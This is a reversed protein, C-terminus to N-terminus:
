IVSPAGQRVRVFNIARYRGKIVLAFTSTVCPGLVFVMHQPRQALTRMVEVVRVREIVLAATSTVCALIVVMVLVRDAIFWM